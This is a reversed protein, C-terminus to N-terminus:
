SPRATAELALPPRPAPAHVKRPSKSKPSRPPTAPQHSSPSWDGGIERSSRLLKSIPSLPAVAGGDGPPACRPTLRPASTPNADRPARPRPQPAGSAAAFAAPNAAAGGLPERLTGDHLDTVLSSILSHTDELSLWNYFLEDLKCRSSSFDSPVQVQM